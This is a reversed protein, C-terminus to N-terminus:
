STSAGFVLVKIYVIRLQLHGQPILVLPVPDRSKTTAALFLRAFSLKSGAQTLM